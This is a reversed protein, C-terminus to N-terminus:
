KVRRGILRLILVRTIKRAGHVFQEHNRLGALGVHRDEAVSDVAAIGIGTMEEADDVELFASMDAVDIQPGTDRWM